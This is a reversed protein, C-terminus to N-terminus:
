VCYQHRVEQELIKLDIMLYVNASFYSQKLESDIGDVEM